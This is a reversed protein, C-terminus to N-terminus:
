TVTSDRAECPFYKLYYLYHVPVALPVGRRPAFMLMVPHNSIIYDRGGLIGSKRGWVVEVKKLVDFPVSKGLKLRKAEFITTKESKRISAIKVPGHHSNQPNGLPM